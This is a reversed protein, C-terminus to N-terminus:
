HFYKVLHAKQGHMVITEQAAAELQVLVLWELNSSQMLVVKCISAMIFTNIKDGHAALLSDTEILRVSGLAMKPKSGEPDGKGARPDSLTM